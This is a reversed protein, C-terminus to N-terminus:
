GPDGDPHLRDLGIALRLVLGGRADGPHVGTLEAVRRLRYRVTNPHVFLRRAAAELVGAADLYCEVTAALEGGASRLPTAV